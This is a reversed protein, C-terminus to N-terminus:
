ANEAGLIMFQRMLNEEAAAYKKGQFHSFETGPSDRKEM